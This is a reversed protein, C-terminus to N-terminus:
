SAQQDPPLAWLVLEFLRLREGDSVDKWYAGLFEHFLQIALAGVGHGDAAGPRESEFAAQDCANKRVSASRAPGLGVYRYALAGAAQAPVRAAERPEAVADLSLVAASAAYHAALAAHRVVVSDAHPDILTTQGPPRAETSLSARVADATARELPMLASFLEARAKKVAGEGLKQGAFDSLTALAHQVAARASPPACAVVTNECISACLHLLGRHLADGPRARAVAREFAPPAIGTLEDSPLVLPLPRLKAM